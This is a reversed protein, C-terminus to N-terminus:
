HHNQYTPWTLSKGHTHLATISHLLTIRRIYHETHSPQEVTTYEVYINSNYLCHNNRQNRHEALILMGYYSEGPHLGTGRVVCM